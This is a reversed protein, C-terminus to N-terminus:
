TIAICEVSIHLEKLPLGVIPTSRAPPNNPFFETYLENLKEFNNTDCLWVTTKIVKSMDSGSHELLISINQFAQKAQSDFEDGVLKGTNYDIGAQGSIYLFDGARVIHSYPINSKTINSIDPIKHIASM